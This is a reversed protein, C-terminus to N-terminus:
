SKRRVSLRKGRKKNLNEQLIQIDILRKCSSGLKTIYMNTRHLLKESEIYIDQFEKFQIQHVSNTIYYLKLIIVSEDVYCM